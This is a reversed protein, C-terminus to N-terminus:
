EDNLNKADNIRRTMIDIANKDGSIANSKIAQFFTIESQLQIERIFDMMLKNELFKDEDISMSKAIQALTFHLECLKHVVIVEDTSFGEIEPLKIQDDESSDAM